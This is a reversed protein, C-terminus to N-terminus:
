LRLIYVGYYTGFNVDKIIGLNLCVCLERWTEFWIRNKFVGMNNKM